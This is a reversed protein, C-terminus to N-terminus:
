QHFAQKLPLVDRAASDLQELQQSLAQPDSDANAARLEVQFSAPTAVTLQRESHM